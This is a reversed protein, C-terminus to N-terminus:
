RRVEQVYPGEAPGSRAPPVYELIRGLDRFGAAAYVREAMATSQLSATSCGRQAADHLHRAILATCSAVLTATGRLYLDNDTTSSAVRSSECVRDAQRMRDGDGLRM